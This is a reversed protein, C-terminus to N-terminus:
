AQPKELFTLYIKRAFGLIAGIASIVACCSVVIQATLDIITSVQENSIQVHVLPSLLVLVSAATGLIGKVTASLKAPDASSTVLWDWIKKLM